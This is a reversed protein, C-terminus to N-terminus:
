WRRASSPAPRHEPREPLLGTAGAAALRPGSGGPGAVIDGAGARWAARGAAHRRPLEGTMPMSSVFYLVGDSTPTPCYDFEPTNVPAGLNELPGWSAGIAARRARYIDQKGKAGPANRNSAVYLSLGDPSEIPCGEAAPSNVEAVPQAPGWPRDGPIVACASCLTAVASMSYGAFRIM